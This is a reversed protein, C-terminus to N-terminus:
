AGSEQASTGCRRIASSQMATRAQDIATQALRMRCQIARREAPRRTSLLQAHLERLARSASEHQQELETITM